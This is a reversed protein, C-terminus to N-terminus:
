IIEEIEATIKVKAIRFFDPERNIALEKTEYLDLGTNLKTITDLISSDCPEGETFGFFGETIVTKKIPENFEELLSLYDVNKESVNISSDYYGRSDKDFYYYLCKENQSYRITHLFLKEKGYKYFKGVELNTKSM